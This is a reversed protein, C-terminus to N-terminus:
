KYFGHGVDDIFQLEWYKDNYTYWKEPIYGSRFAVCGNTTDGYKYVEEIAQITEPYIETRWYAFQNKATIITIVDNGYLKDPHNLRNLIVSVVNKKSHIDAGHTETEVCRQIMYIEEKTFETYLSTSEVIEQKNNESETLQKLQLLGMYCYIKPKESIILQTKENIETIIKEEKKQTCKAGGLFPMVSLITMASLIVFAFIRKKM